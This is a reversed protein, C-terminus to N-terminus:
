TESSYKRNHRIYTVIYKLRSPKARRPASTNMSLQTQHKKLFNFDQTCNRRCLFLARPGSVSIELSFIIMQAFNLQTYERDLLVNTGVFTLLNDLCMPVPGRTVSAFSLTSLSGTAVLYVSFYDDTFFTLM